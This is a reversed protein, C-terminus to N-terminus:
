SVKVLFSCYMAMLSSENDWYKEVLCWGLNHRSKQQRNELKQQQAGLRWCLPFRKVIRTRKVAHRTRSVTAPRFEAGNPLYIYNIETTKLSEIWTTRWDVEGFRVQPREAGNMHSVLAWRLWTGPLNMSTKAQCTHKQLTELSNCKKGKLFAVIGVVNESLCQLEMPWSLFWNVDDALISWFKFWTSSLDGIVRADIGLYELGDPLKWFIHPYGFLQFNRGYIRDLVCFSTQFSHNPAHDM